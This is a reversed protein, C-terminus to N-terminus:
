EVRVVPGKMGLFRWRRATNDTRVATRVVAVFCSLLIFPTAPRVM